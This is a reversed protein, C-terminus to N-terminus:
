VPSDPDSPSHIPVQAHGRWRALWRQPLGTKALSIAMAVLFFLIGLAILDLGRLTGRAAQYARWGAVGLWGAGTGGGAIYYDRRPGFAYGYVVAIAALLIQRKYVDGLV